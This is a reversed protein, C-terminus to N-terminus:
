VLQFIHGSNSYACPINLDNLVSINFLIKIEFKSYERQIMSTHYSLIYTHAQFYLIRISKIVPFPDSSRNKNEFFCLVLNSISKFIYCRQANRRTHTRVFAKELM